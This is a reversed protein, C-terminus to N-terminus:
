TTIKSRGRFGALYRQYCERQNSWRSGPAYSLCARYVPGQGNVGVFPDYKLLADARSLEIIIVADNASM